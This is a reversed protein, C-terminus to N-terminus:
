VQELAAHAHFGRAPANEWKKQVRGQAVAGQRSLKAENLRHPRLHAGVEGAAGM